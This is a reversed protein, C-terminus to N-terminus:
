DHKEKMELIANVIKEMFMSRSAKVLIVDGTEILESLKEILDEKKEFCLILFDGDFCGAQRLPGGRRVFHFRCLIQPM